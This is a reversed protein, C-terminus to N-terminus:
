LCQMNIGLQSPLYILSSFAGNYSIPQRRQMMYNAIWVVMHM